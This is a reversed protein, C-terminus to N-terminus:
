RAAMPDGLVPGFAPQCIAPRGHRDVTGGPEVSFGDIIREAEHRLVDLEASSLVQSLTLFGNREYEDLQAASLGMSVVCRHGLDDERAAAAAAAVPHKHAQQDSSAESPRTPRAPAPSLHDGLRRLM